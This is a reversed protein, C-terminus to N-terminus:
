RKIKEIADSLPIGKQKCVSNVRMWDMVVMEYVEILNMGDTEAQIHRLMRRTEKSVWLQVNDKSGPM